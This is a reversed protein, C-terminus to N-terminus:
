SSEALSALASELLLEPRDGDQPFFVQAEHFTFGAQGSVRGVASWENLSKKLVAICRDLDDMGVEPVAVAFVGYSVHGLEWYESTFHLFQSSINRLLSHTDEPSHTLSYRGLGSVCFIRLCLAQNQVSMLHMLRELRDLFNARHPLGTQPDLGKLESVRDNLRMHHAHASLRAALAAFFELRQSGLTQGKTGVLILGGIPSENYVLPWGYFSTPKKLPEPPSFIYTYNEGTNLRAKALPRLHTHVWGALGGDMPHSAKLGQIEPCAARIFFNSSAGPFVETIFAWTLGSWDLLLPPLASLWHSEPDQSALLGELSSWLGFPNDERDM